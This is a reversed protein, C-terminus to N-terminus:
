RGAADVLLPLGVALEMFGLVLLAALAVSERWHGRMEDLATRLSM